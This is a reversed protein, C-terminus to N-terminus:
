GVEGQVKKYDEFVEGRVKCFEGGDRVSDEFIGGQLRAFRGVHNKHGVPENDLIFHRKKNFGTTPVGGTLGRPM